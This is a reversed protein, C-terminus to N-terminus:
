PSEHSLITLKEMESESLEESDGDMPYVVKYSAGDFSEVHGEFIGHGPFLKAFTTGAPFRPTETSPPRNKRPEPVENEVTSKEPLVPSLIKLQKLQFETLDEEDDDAPYWVRYHRGNLSNIQGVYTGFGPFKKEFKTGIAFLPKSVKKGTRNNSTTISAMAGDSASLDQGKSHLLNEMCHRQFISLKKIPIRMLWGLHLFTLFPSSGHRSNKLIFYLPAVVCTGNGRDRGFEQEFLVARKYLEDFDTSIDIKADKHFWTNSPWQKYTIGLGFVLKEVQRIITLFNQDSIKPRWYDKFQTFWFGDGKANEGLKQRLKGMLSSKLEDRRSVDATSTTKRKTAPRDNDDRRSDSGRKKAAVCEDAINVPQRLIVKRESRRMPEVPTTSKKRKRAPGNGNGSRRNMMKSFEDLGLKKLRQENVRVNADRMEQYTEYYLGDRSLYQHTESLASAM